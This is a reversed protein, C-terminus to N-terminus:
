NGEEYDKIKRDYEAIRMDYADVVKQMHQYKPDNHDMNSLEMRLITVHSEMWSLTEKNSRHCEDLYDDWKEQTWRFINLVSLLTDLNDLFGKTYHNANIMNLFSLGNPSAGLVLDANKNKLEKAEKLFMYAGTKSRVQNVINSIKDAHDILYKTRYNPIDELKGALASSVQTFLFKTFMALMNSQRLIGLVSIATMRVNKINVVKDEIITDLNKGIEILIGHFDMNAEALSCMFFKDEDSKAKGQLKKMYEPYVNQAPGKAQKSATAYKTYIDKYEKPNMTFILDHLKKHTNINEKIVDRLDDVPISRTKVADKTLQIINEALKSFVSM